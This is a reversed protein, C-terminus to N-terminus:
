ESCGQLVGAQARVHLDMLTQHARLALRACPEHHQTLHALIAAGGHAVAAFLIDGAARPPVRGSALARALQVAIRRASEYGDPNRIQDLAYHYRAFLCHGASASRFAVQQFLTGRYSLGSEDLLDRTKSDRDLWRDSVLNAWLETAAARLEAVRLEALESNRREDAVLSDELERPLTWQRLLDLYALKALLSGVEEHMSSVVRRYSQLLVLAVSLPMAGLTQPIDTLPAFYVSTSVHPKERHLLDSDLYFCFPSSGVVALLWTVLRALEVASGENPGAAVTAALRSVEGRDDLVLKKLARAQIEDLSAAGPIRALETRLMEHFLRADRPLAAPMAGREHSSDVGRTGAAPSSGLTGPMQSLELRLLPHERVDMAMGSALGGFEPSGLARLATAAGIRAYVHRARDALISILLRVLDSRGLKGLLRLIRFEAVPSLEEGHLLNSIRDADVLRAHLICREPTSDISSLNFNLVDSWRGGVIADLASSCFGSMTDSDMLDLALLAADQYRTDLLCDPWVSRDGAITAALFYDHAIRTRFHFGGAGLRVLETAAIAAEATGPPLGAAEILVRARPLPIRGGFPQQWAMSALVTAVSNVVVTRADSRLDSVAREILRLFFRQLLAGYSPHISEASM